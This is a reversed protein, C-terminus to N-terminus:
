AMAALRRDIADVHAKVQKMVAEGGVEAAVNFLYKARALRESDQGGSLFLLKGHCVYHRCQGPECDSALQFEKDAEETEGRDQLLHALQHHADANAPNGLLVQKVIQEAEQKRGLSGLGKAKECLAPAFGPFTALIEEIHRLGSDFQGRRIKQQALQLRLAPENPMMAISAELWDMSLQPPENTGFTLKGPSIAWIMQILKIVSRHLCERDFEIYEWDGQIGGVRRVKSEKLLILQKKNAAAFTLEQELWEAARWLDEGEIKDRRTLIAVFIDAQLIRRQVKEHIHTSEPREGSTCRLGMESLLQKYFTVLEHDDDAFSHGIFATRELLIRGEARVSVPKSRDDEPGTERKQLQVMEPDFSM